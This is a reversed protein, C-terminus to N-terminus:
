TDPGRVCLSWLMGGALCLCWSSTPRKRKSISFASVTVVASLRDFDDASQCKDLAAPLPSPPAPPVPGSIPVCHVNSGTGVTCEGPLLTDACVFGGDCMCHDGYVCLAESASAGAVRCPTPDSGTGDPPLGYGGCGTQAPTPTPPTWSPPPAPTACSFGTPVCFGAAACYFTGETCANGAPEPSPHLSPPPPPLGMNDAACQCAGFLCVGSLGIPCPHCESDSGCAVAQRVVALTALVGALHM